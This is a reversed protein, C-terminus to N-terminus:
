GSLAVRWQYRRDPWQEAMPHFRLRTGREDLRRLIHGHRFKFFTQLQATVGSSILLVGSTDNYIATGDALTGFTPAINITGKNDIGGGSFSAYASLETLTVGPDLTLIPSGQGSIGLIELDVYYQSTTGLTIAGATITTSGIVGLHEDTAAIRLTGPTTGDPEFLALSGAINVAAGSTGDSTLGPGIYTVGDLTANNRLSLGGKDLLAGGVILGGLAIPNAATATLTNGANELVGDMVVTGHNNAINALDAPTYTGALVLTAGLEVSISGDNVLPSTGANLVLESGAGTVDIGGGAANTIGNTTADITVTDNNEVEIMGSNVFAPENIVLTGNYYQGIISGENDIGVGGTNSTIAAYQANTRGQDITLSPGFIVGATNNTVIYSEYYANTGLDIVGGNITTAVGPVNPDANLSLVASQGNVTITGSLNDTGALTLAANVAGLAIDGTLSADLLEGGAAVVSGGAVTLTGGEITGGSDLILTGAEVTLGASIALASTIDLNIASADLTVSQAAEPSAITVTYPGPITFVATDGAGPVIDGSWSGSISWDGGVGAQWTITAMSGGPYAIM